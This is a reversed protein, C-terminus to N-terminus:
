LYPSARAVTSLCCFAASNANRGSINHIIFSDRYNPPLQSAHIRKGLGGNISFGFCFHFAKKPPFHLEPDKKRRTKQKLIRNGIGSLLESKTVFRDADGEREKESARVRLVVRM